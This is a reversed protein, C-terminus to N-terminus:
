RRARRIRWRRWLSTRDLMAVLHASSVADTPEQRRTFERWRRWADAKARVFPMGRGRTALWAFGAVCTALHLPGYRWAARTPMNKLYVWELNRHGHYVAFRSDLGSSASGVHHAVAEAVYWCRRGARQLRFGLDVDEAYCFFREDLGGVRRWDDRRYLAGAACASFGGTAM